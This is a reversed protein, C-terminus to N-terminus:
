LTQPIAPSAMQDLLALKGSAAVFEEFAAPDSDDPEVEGPELCLEPHGCCKRLEMLLNRKSTLPQSRGTPGDGM